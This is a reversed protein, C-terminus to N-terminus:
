GVTNDGIKKPDKRTIAVVSPRPPMKADFDPWRSAPDNFTSQREFGKFHEVGDAAPHQVSVFLTEGDPTFCPGCLEAGVPARFLMKGTGRLPGETDLGWIGDATGTTPWNKGQDSAIWLRGFPDIECNDPSAFWGDKSINPNWVAKIDPNSPDGCRVLIDWRYTQVTHDNDPPRMEIIHGYLNEPRPNAADIQRDTRRKNNTLMVYVAGTVPNPQVDEPRDMKTAGLLDAARRTEILVDAQSQFDNEATLPGDGFVLNIWEVTGDADFRAVSLTGYDLIEGNNERIDVDVADRSVFRYIYDFRQDDGMYVVLRGDKNLITEGGEHKFRGLATRKIPTSDPNLPDVEVMWGFRNAENPEKAIDFRDFYRAWSKWGGPIGYREFNRQERGNNLQGSFYGNFNEEAMLWTGWPTIGGACNNLTGLVRTGTPDVSTKLRDHGAAPGSINMPTGNTTIRRNFPSSAVPAWQGDDSRAIEIISGGHAAMEIEAQMRSQAKDGPNLGPFMLEETTFEHNVCLLGRRANNSGYPLPIFGLFDNNYGFQQAQADPSQNFPDFPPADETLPDGWRLLIDARHDAAIHHTEDVGHSIEEFNFRSEAGASINDAVTKDTTQTTAFASAAPSLVSLIGAAISNKLFDRRDLRAAIIQAITVNDSANTPLDDDANQIDLSSM